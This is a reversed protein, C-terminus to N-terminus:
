CLKRVVILQHSPSQRLTRSCADGAHSPPEYLAMVITPAARVANKTAPDMSPKISAYM